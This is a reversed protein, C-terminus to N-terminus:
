LAKRVTASWPRYGIGRLARVWGPHGEILMETCGQAKAWTHVLELGAVLAALTGAAWMVQCARQRPYNVLEVVMCGGPVLLVHSRGEAIAQEISEISHHSGDCAKAIEPRWRTWQEALSM